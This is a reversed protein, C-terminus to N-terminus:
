LLAYYKTSMLFAYTMLAMVGLLAFPFYVDRYEAYTNADFQSRELQDIERCVNKLEHLDGAYLYRGGTAQAITQLTEPDFGARRLTIINHQTPDLPPGIGITYVKVGYAQAIKIGEEPSLAGTTQAGDSLLVIIKTKNTSDKLREVATALADGIATGSEEDIVKTRILNGRTDYLPTPTKISDLLDILSKHDLTLPCYADVFGGFAVLSILDNPRGKFDKSGEVFDRFVKKVADLRTVPLGDIEFDTETMSYSRDVCMVISIGKGQTRSEKVGNQPRALAVVVLTAGVYFLTPLFRYFRMALSPPIDELGDLTSFLVTARIQRRRSLELAAITLIPALMFLWYPSAFRFPTM